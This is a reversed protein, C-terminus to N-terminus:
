PRRSYDELDWETKRLREEWRQLTRSTVEYGFMAKLIRKCQNYSHHKIRLKFFEKRIDRKEM